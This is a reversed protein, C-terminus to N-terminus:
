KAELLFDSGPENDGFEGFRPQPETKELFILMEHVTLIKDKGGYERLAELFKRTFPSHHGPRGDPVYEKGGSTLYLRTKYKLKRQVFEEPSVEAYIDSGRHISAMIPDFTGGFCVDMVLFIHECPINNIITRLNSHSVYSTKAPDDLKSDRAIVYGEQFVEDFEGHGAFYILLNDNPSYDAEAYERLKKMIDNLTPNEVVETIVRYNDSLEESVSEADIVPNVLDSFSDYYNTAFFLARTIRADNDPIIKGSPNQLAKDSRGSIDDKETVVPMFPNQVINVPYRKGSEPHILEFRDYDNSMQGSTSKKHVAIMAKQWKQKFKKAENVSIEVGAQTDMFQIKYIQLDANYGIIEEISILWEDDSKGKKLQYKQECLKQLNYLVQDALMARRRNFEKTTEFEDRSATLRSDLQSLVLSTNEPTLVKKQAQTPDTGLFDCLMSRNSAKVGQLEWIIVQQDSGYTTLFRGDDSFTGGFVQDSHRYISEVLQYSDGEEKWIRGRAYDGNFFYDGAPSFELTRNVKSSEDLLATIEFQGSKINLDFVRTGYGSGVLIRNKLPHFECDELYGKSPLIEQFTKYKEGDWKRILMKSDNGVSAFFTDDFNFSIGTVSNEHDELVQVLKYGLGNFSWIRITKDQSCSALLQGSHSWNIDQIHDSHGTLVEIVQRSELDIIAMDNNSKYKAYALYKEDPSFSIHGGVSKPDGTYEFIKNWNKDYVELTNNGITLAFFNRYPSFRAEMIYDGFGTLEKKERCSFEQASILSSVAVFISILLIKMTKTKALICFKPLASIYSERFVFWFRAPYTSDLGTLLNLFGKYDWSRVFIPLYPM